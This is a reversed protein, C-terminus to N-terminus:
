PHGRDTGRLVGVGKRLRKNCIIPKPGNSRRTVLRDFGGFGQEQPHNQRPKIALLTM